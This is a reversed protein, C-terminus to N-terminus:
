CCIVIVHTLSTTVEDLLVDTHLGAPLSDRAGTAPAAAILRIEAFDRAVWSSAGPAAAARAATLGAFFALILALLTRM